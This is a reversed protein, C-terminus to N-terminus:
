ADYIPDPLLVEDGDNIVAALAAYIGFTAGSTILTESAPDYPVCNDRLLKEAVAERLAPEGRNDPYTTRGATLARVAAEVIHPPTRFDPEGRMLSVLERGEAQLRRVEALIANVATPRLLGIRDSVPIDRATMGSPTGGRRRLTM